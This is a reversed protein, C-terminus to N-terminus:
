FGEIAGADVPLTVGNVYRGAESCLYLAANGIDDPHGFTHTPIRSLIKNRRPEDTDIAKHLMPTDIWGPAITNVRIGDRSYDAILARQIGLVASKATTYAVVKEMGMFASMSSILIICGRRRPVMRRLVERSLAFVSLVHTDIVGLYEADTVDLAPKKLHIGAGNVLIDIPGVNEEIDAVLAPMAAKDTVDFARYTCQEGLQQQAERLKEERRGIIVVKAGAQVFIRAIGLGLGTGGGTIVAVQGDLKFQSLM